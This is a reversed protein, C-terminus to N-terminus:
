RKSVSGSGTINVDTNPNGLYQVSGSGNISAHLLDSVALEIYGSGNIKATAEKTNLSSANIYGSGNIIHFATNSNGQVVIKGSGDLKNTVTNGRFKMNMNGSGDLDLQLHDGTFENQGNVSGSGELAIKTLHPVSIYVDQRHSKRICENSSYGIELVEGVVQTKIIPLLNDDSVLEVRQTNEQSIYVNFDGKIKVQTFSPVTREIKAIDGSGKICDNCSVLLLNVLVLALSILKIKKM